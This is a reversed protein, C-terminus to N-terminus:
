IILKLDSPLIKFVVDGTGPSEGDLELYIKQVSRVRVEQGSAIRLRPYDVHTGKYLSPILALCETKTLGEFVMIDMKGDNIQAQPAIMFGGGFYKGNSIAVLSSAGSYFEQGDVEVSLIPNEFKFVSILAASFFSLFGGWAKSRQNVRYVTESGIGIDAINIYYRSAEMGDWDKYTAQVVDCRQEEGENLLKEIYGLQSSIPLIRSFDSGTGMPIVSLAAEKNLLNPEYYFGNLVENITGDGGVAIIHTYTSQLAEATIRSAHLPAETFRVSFAYGKLRLEREVALWKKYTRGNGSVPNVVFMVHNNKQM